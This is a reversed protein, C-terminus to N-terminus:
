APSRIKEPLICFFSVATVALINHHDIFSLILSTMFTLIFVGLMALEVFMESPTIEYYDVYPYEIKSLPNGVSYVFFVDEENLDGQYSLNLLKLPGVKFNRATKYIGQPNGKDIEYKEDTYEGYILEMIEINNEKDAYGYYGSAIEQEGNFVAYAMGALTQEQACVTWM